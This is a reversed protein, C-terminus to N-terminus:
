IKKSAFLVLYRIGDYIKIFGDKKEIWIHLPKSGMFSKYSIGCILINEYTKYLKEYLLIDIFDIDTARMVDDFYYCTCNKIDTEKLEDKSEM